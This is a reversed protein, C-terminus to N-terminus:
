QHQATHRAQIPCSMSILHMARKSVVSVVNKYFLPLYLFLALIHMDKSFNLLFLGSLTLGWGM